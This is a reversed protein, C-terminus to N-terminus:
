EKEYAIISRNKIRKLREGEIYIEYDINDRFIVTEGELDGYVEKFRKNAHRLIGKCARDDGGREVVMGRYTKEEEVIPEIFNHDCLAYIGGNEDIKCFMEHYDLEALDENKVKRRKNPEQVHHHVYVTDGKKIEMMDNDRPVAYVTARQTVIDSEFRRYKTPYYIGSETQKVPDDDDYKDPIVFVKEGYPRM